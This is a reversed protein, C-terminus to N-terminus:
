FQQRMSAKATASPGIAVWYSEGTTRRRKTLPDRFRQMVLGSPVIVLAFLVMMVVPNVVRHMLLGLKFWLLNLPQLLEPCRWSLGGLLVSLGAFGIALSITDRYFLALLAAVVTFVIGTARPSPPKAEDHVLSEHFNRRVPEREM